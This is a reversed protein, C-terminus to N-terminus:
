GTGKKDVILSSLYTSVLKEGKDIAGAKLPRKTAEEEAAKVSLARSEDTALIEYELSLSASVNKKGSNIMHKINEEFDRWQFVISREGTHSFTTVIWDDKSKSYMATAEWKVARWQKCEKNCQRRLKAEAAMQFMKADYEGVKWYQGHSHFNDNKKADKLFARAKISFPPVLHWLTEEFSQPREVRGKKRPPLDADDSDESDDATDSSSLNIPNGSRGDLFSTQRTALPGSLSPRSISAHLADNTSDRRKLSPVSARKSKRASNSNFDAM